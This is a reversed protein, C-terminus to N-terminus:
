AQSALKTLRCSAIPFGGIPAPEGNALRKAELRLFDARSFIPYQGVPGGVHVPKFLKGAVFGGLGNENPAFTPLYSMGMATLIPSFGRNLQSGEPMPM